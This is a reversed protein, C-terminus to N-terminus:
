SSATVCSSQSIGQLPRCVCVCVCVCVCLHVVARVSKGHRASRHLRCTSAITHTHTHTHMHTKNHAAVSVVACAHKVEEFTVPTDGLMEKLTYELVHNMRGEYANLM